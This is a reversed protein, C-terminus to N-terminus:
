GRSAGYSAKAVGNDPVSTESISEFFNVEARLDATAANLRELETNLEELLPMDKAGAVEGSIKGIPTPQEGTSGTLRRNATRLRDVFNLVESTQSRVEDIMSSITRSM